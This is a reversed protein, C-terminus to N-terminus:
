RSYYGVLLVQGQEFIVGQIIGVKILTGTMNSFKQQSLRKDVGGALSLVLCVM